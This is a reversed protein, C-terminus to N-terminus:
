SVSPGTTSDPAGTPRVSRFKPPCHCHILNVGANLSTTGASDNSIPAPSTPWVQTIKVCRSAVGPTGIIVNVTGAPSRASIRFGGVTARFGGSVALVVAVVISLVIEIPHPILPNLGEEGALPIVYM